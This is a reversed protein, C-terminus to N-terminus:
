GIPNNNSKYEFKSENGQDRVSQKLSKGVSIKNNFGVGSVICSINIDM